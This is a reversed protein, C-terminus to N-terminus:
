PEPNLTTHQHSMTFVTIFRQLKNCRYPSSFAQKCITEELRDTKLDKICSTTPLAEPRSRHLIQKNNYRCPILEFKTNTQLCAAQLRHVDSHWFVCPFYPVFFVGQKVSQIFHVCSLSLSLIYIFYLMKKTVVRLSNPKSLCTKAQIFYELFSFHHACIFWSHTAVPSKNIIYVLATLHVALTSLIARPM